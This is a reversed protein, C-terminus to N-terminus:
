IIKKLEYKNLKFGLKEYLKIANVNKIDVNLLINKIRKLQAIKFSKDMLATAIGKNRYKQSVFVYEIKARSFRQEIKIHIFGTLNHNKEDKAFLLEEDKSSLIRLFEKKIEADRINIKKGILKSYEKFDLQKLKVFEELHTKDAEELIM